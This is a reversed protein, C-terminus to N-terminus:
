TPETITLAIARSGNIEDPQLKRGISQELATRATTVAEKERDRQPVAGNLAALLQDVRQQTLALDNQASRFASSAIFQKRTMGRTDIEGSSVRQVETVPMM